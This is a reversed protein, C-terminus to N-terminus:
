KMRKGNIKHEEAIIISKLISITKQLDDNVIHYDYHNMESMEKEFDKLRRNLTHTTETNRNYLRNQLEEKNPPSIFILVSKPIKKKVQLAGQTDIMLLLAKGSSSAKKLECMEIGYLDGFIEAYELFEGRNQKDRFEPEGVFYYDMGNKEVRRPARTTSTVVRVIKDPWEQLLLNGLTTKGTGSPASLIFLPVSLAFLRSVQSEKM